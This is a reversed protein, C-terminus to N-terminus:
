QKESKLQNYVIKEKNGFCGNLSNISTEIIFFPFSSFYIQPNISSLFTIDQPLGFHYFSKKAPPNGSFLFLKKIVM